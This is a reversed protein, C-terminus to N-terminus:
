TVVTTSVQRHDVATMAAGGGPGGRHGLLAAVCQIAGGVQLVEVLGVEAVLGFEAVQERLLCITSIVLKAAFAQAEVFGVFEFGLAVAQRHAGVTLARCQERNLDPVAIVNIGVVMGVDAAIAGVTMGM